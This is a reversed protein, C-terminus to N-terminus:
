EPKRIKGMYLEKPHVIIGLKKELVALRRMETDNGISVMIGNKGARATRGARHIYFDPDEPLDLAIIHSIDPIDLGRAALDSTVLLRVRGSRFDAVAQQRSQNSMDGWLGSANLKHHRLRSVLDGVANGRSTFVLAKPNQNKKLAAFLSRLLDPKDREECYFAWHEIKEKLIDGPSNLVKVGEGMLPILRERSKKSFTASCSSIVLQMNKSKIKQKVLKVLEQTEELLEDNVLRDGEDLIMYELDNLKLKGMRLLLLLRGPNGTIVLPADKKLTHIQRNLSVQGILLSSKHKTERLLFNVEENIQSCLEYTPACILLRPSRGKARDAAPMEFGPLDQFKGLIPLLYALTKGTGTPSLFLLSMNGALPIVQKQIETPETIGREKLRDIFFTLVGLTEFSNM